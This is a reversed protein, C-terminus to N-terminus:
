KRVLDLGLDFSTTVTWYGGIMQVFIGAAAAEAPILNAATLANWLIMLDNTMVKDGWSDVEGTERLTFLNDFASKDLYIHTHGNEAVRINMPVGNKVWGILQTITANQIGSLDAGLLGGLLAKITEPNEDLIQNIVAELDSAGEGLTESLIKTINLKLVFKGNNETWTAVEAPSTTFGSTAFNSTVASKEPFGSGFFIGMISSADMVVNPNDVYDALINGQKDLTISNLVQPLIAGGLHRFLASLFEPYADDGTYQWDSYLAGSVPWNKMESSGFTYDVVEYDALRYTGVNPNVVEDDDDSCATFLSMSCILAFLYFLNKKM